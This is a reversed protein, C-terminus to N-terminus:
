VTEIPIERFLRAIILGERKEPLGNEHRAHREEHANQQKGNCQCKEDGQASDLKTTLDDLKEQGAKMNAKCKAMSMMPMPPKTKASQKSKTTQHQTHTQASAFGSLSVAAIAIAIALFTSRIKM